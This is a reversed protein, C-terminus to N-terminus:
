EIRTITFEEGEEDELTVEYEDINIINYERKKMSEIRTNNHLDALTEKIIKIYFDKDIDLDPDDGVTYTNVFDYKLSNGKEIMQDGDFKWTGEYRCLYELVITYIHDFDECDLKELDFNFKYRLTCEEVVTHNKKYEEAGECYYDVTIGSDEDGWEVDLEMESVDWKGVLLKEQESLNTCNTTLCLLLLMCVSPILIGANITSLSKKM